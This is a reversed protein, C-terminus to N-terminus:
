PEHAACASYRHNCACRPTDESVNSKGFAWGRLQYKLQQDLMHFEDSPAHAATLPAGRVGTLAVAEALVAGWAMGVYMVIVHKQGGSASNGSSPLGTEKHIVESMSWRTFIDSSGDIETVRCIAM